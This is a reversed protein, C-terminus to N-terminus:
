AASNAAETKKALARRRAVLGMLAAAGMLGYTSPEPTPPLDADFSFALDIGGKASLGEECADLYTGKTSVQQWRVSFDYAGPATKDFFGAINALTVDDTFAFAFTAKEGYQVGLAGSGSTGGGPTSIGYDQDFSNPSLDYPTHEEWFDDSSWNVTPLGTHGANVQTWKAKFNVDGATMPLWGNPTNFGFSILTGVRDNTNAALTNNVAVVMTNANLNLWMTFSTAVTLDGSSADGITGTVTFNKTILQAQVAPVLATLAFGLLTVSRLSRVNM